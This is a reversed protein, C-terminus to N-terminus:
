RAVETRKWHGFRMAMFAEAGLLAFVILLLHWGWDRGADKVQTESPPQDGAMNMEIRGLAERIANDPITRIDAESAPINVAVPINADGLGLTYVGPASLAATRYITSPGTGGAEEVLQSEIPIAKKDPDQLMPSATMRVSPPIVLPQGVELNM